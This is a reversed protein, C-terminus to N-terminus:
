KILLMKRIVIVLRYIRKQVRPLVYETVSMVMSQQAASEVKQRDEM